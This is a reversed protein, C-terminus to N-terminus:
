RLEQIRILFSAQMTIDMATMSAATRPGASRSEQRTQQDCGPNYPGTM